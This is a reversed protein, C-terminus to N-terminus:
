EKEEHRPLTALKKEWLSSPICQNTHRLMRVPIRKLIDNIKLLVIIKSIEHNVLLWANKLIHFRGDESRVLFDHTGHGFLILSSHIHKVVHFEENHVKVKTVNGSLLDITMSTDISLLEPKAYCLAFIIRALSIGEYSACPEWETICVDSLNVLLFCFELRKSLTGWIALAIAFQRFPQAEFILWIKKLIQTIM